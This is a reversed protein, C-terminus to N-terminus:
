GGFPSIGIDGEQGVRNVWAHEGQDRGDAPACGPVSPDSHASLERGVWLGGDKEDAQTDM